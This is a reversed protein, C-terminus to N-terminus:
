WFRLFFDSFYKPVNGRDNSNEVSSRTLVKLVGPQGHWLVLFLFWKKIIRIEYRPCTWPSLGWWYVIKTLKESKQCTSGDMSWWDSFRSTRVTIISPFPRITLDLSETSNVTVLYKNNPSMLKITTYNSDLIVTVSRRHFSGHEDSSKVMKGSVPRVTFREPHPKFINGHAHSM